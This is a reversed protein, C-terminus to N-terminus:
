GLPTSVSRLWSSLLVLYPIAEQIGAGLLGRILKKWWRTQVFEFTDVDTLSYNTGFCIGIICFIISTDM